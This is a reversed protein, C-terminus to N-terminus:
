DWKGETDIYEFLLESYSITIKFMNETNVIQKNQENVLETGILEHDFLLNTGAFVNTDKTVIDKSKYRFKYVYTSENKTCSFLTIATVILLLTKM